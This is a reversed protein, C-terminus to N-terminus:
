IQGRLKLNERLNTSGDFRKESQPLSRGPEEWGEEGGGRSGKKGRRYNVSIEPLGSVDM